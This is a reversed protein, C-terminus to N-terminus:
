HPKLTVNSSFQHVRLKKIIELIDLEENLKSNADKFLYDDRKKKPRLCCCVKYDFSELFAFRPYKYSFTERSEIENRIKEHDDGGLDEDKDDDLDQISVRPNSADQTPIPELEDASYLKKILSNVLSFGQM